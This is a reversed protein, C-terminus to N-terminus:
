TPIAGGSSLDDQAGNSPECRTGVNRDAGDNNTTECDNITVEQTTAIEANLSQMLKNQQALMLKM